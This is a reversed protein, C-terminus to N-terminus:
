RGAGEAVLCQWRAGTFIALALFISGCVIGGVYLGFPDFGELSGFFNSVFHDALRWEPPFISMCFPNPPGTQSGGLGQAATTLPSMSHADGCGHM